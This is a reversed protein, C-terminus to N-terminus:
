VSSALQDFAIGFSIHDDEAGVMEVSRCFFYVVWEDKYFVSEDGGDRRPGLLFDRRIRGNDIERFVAFGDEGGTEDVKVHV